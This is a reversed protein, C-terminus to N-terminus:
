AKAAAACFALKVPVVRSAISKSRFGGFFAAGGCIL